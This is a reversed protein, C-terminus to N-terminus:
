IDTRAGDFGEGLFNGSGAGDDPISWHTNELDGREGFPSEFDGLRDGFVRTRSGDNAAAVSNGGYVSSAYGVVDCVDGSTTACGQFKQFALLQWSHLRQGVLMSITM